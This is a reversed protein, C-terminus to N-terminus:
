VSTDIYFTSAKKHKGAAKHAEDPDTPVSGCAECYIYDSARLGHRAFLAGTKGTRKTYNALMDAIGTSGDNLIYKSVKGDPNQAVVRVAVFNSGYEGKYFDWSMFMLPIDVLRRKAEEGKLLAFGDGLVHAVDDVSGYAEAALRAYYEFTDGDRLAEEDYQESKYLGPVISDRLTVQQQEEPTVEPITNDDVQQQTDETSEATKTSRSARM